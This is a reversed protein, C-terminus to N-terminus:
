KLYVMKKTQVSCGARLRYFYIGTPFATNDTEPSWSIEHRGPELVDNVLTSVKQGLLNFVDLEVYSRQPISFEITTSANYPNPYNQYLEAPTPLAKPNSGDDDTNSPGPLKYWAVDYLDAVYVYDEMICIDNVYGCTQHVELSYPHYVDSINIVEFGEWGDALVIYKGKIATRNYARQPSFTSLLVPHTPDTIDLLELDYNLTSNLLINGDIAVHGCGRGDDPDPYTTVLEPNVPDTLDFIKLGEGGDALYLYDGSIEVDVSYGTEYQNALRPNAPDTVDMILLAGDVDAIYVFDGALALAFAHSNGYQGCLHPNEPDSYDIIMLGGYYGCAYAHNGHIRVELPGGPIQLKSILETIGVDANRAIMISQYTESGFVAISDTIDMPMVHSSGIIRGIEYPSSPASIDLVVFDPSPFRQPLLSDACVDIGLEYEYVLPSYNCAYLFSDEVVLRNTVRMNPFCGALIVQTPDSIDYIILGNEGAAIYVMNGVVQLDSAYCFFTDFFVVEPNIPDSIDVISFRSNGAPLPQMDAEEAIYALSDSLEVGKAIDKLALSSILAPSAPVSVDFIWLNGGAIYLTDGKEEIDYFPFGTTPFRGERKPAEPHSINVIELGNAHGVYAMQGSVFVSYVCGYDSGLTGRLTFNTPGEIDYISLSGDATGLYLRSESITVAMVHKNLYLHSVIEPSRPDKVSIIMIGNSMACYMYSDRLAMDNYANWLASGAYQLEGAASSNLDIPQQNGLYSEMNQPNDQADSHTTFFLFLVASFSLIISRIMSIKM